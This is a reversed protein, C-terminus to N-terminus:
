EKLVKRVVEGTETQIRAFYVGTPLHSINILHNSSTSILHNSLVNRGNVDFIEVNEIRLSGSEIVLEGTTPNPYVNVLEQEIDNIGLSTVEVTFNQTYDKGIASGDKITATIIAIGPATTNLKSATITAGTTGADKVSWSITKYTANNPVVTGKSYLNLPVGAVTKTPVDIIETVSVFDIVRFPTVMRPPKSCFQPNYIIAANTMVVYYYGSKNFTIIGEKLIYNEPPALTSSGLWIWFDTAIGGFEKQDSFDVSDGVAIIQTPFAQRGFCRADINDIMGCFRYLDSLKLRNEDCDIVEMKEVGFDIQTIKNGDCVLQKLAINDRLDLFTLNGNDSINGVRIEELNTCNRTNIYRLLGFISSSTIKKISPCKSLDITDARDVHLLTFKCNESDGTITVKFTGMPFEHNLSQIDGTGIFKKITGDGYNVTFPEGSTAVLWEVELGNCSKVLRITDNGRSFQANAATSCFLVIFFGILKKM